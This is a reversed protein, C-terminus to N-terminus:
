ARKPRIRQRVYKATGRQRFLSARMLGQLVMEIADNDLGTRRAIGRITVVAGPQLAFLYTQLRNWREDGAATGHISVDM